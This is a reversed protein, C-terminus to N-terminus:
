GNLSGQVNRNKKIARGFRSRREQLHDILQPPTQVEFEAGAHGLVVMAWDMSDTTMLLRCSRGGVDEITGWPGIRKRVADAPAEILVEVRYRLPLNAIGSRVFEGADRVPLEHPISRAGTTRPEEVRDIRFTRWDFRGLDWAVLYWRRGLLVMRHPDVERNSRDGGKTEYAFSLREGDRCAQALCVLVEADVSSTSEQWPAPVTMESLADIRRRLRPPMVQIV